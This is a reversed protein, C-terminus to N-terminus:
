FSYKPLEKIAVIQYSIYGNGSEKATREQASKLILTDFGIPDAQIKEGVDKPMSVGIRKDDNWFRMWETASGDENTADRLDLKQGAVLVGKEVLVAKIQAINM